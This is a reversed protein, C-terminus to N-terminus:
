KQELTLAYIDNTSIDRLLLAAETPDLGTWGLTGFAVKPWNKLDAIKELEGGKVRM